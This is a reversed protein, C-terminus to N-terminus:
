TPPDTAEFALEVRNGNGEYEFRLDGEVVRTVWYVLWLGVGASHSLDTEEEEQLVQQEADPVQSCEDLVATVITGDETYIQIHVSPKGDGDYHEIGNEILESLAVEYSDPVRAYVSDPANISISVAPYEARFEAVVRRAYQAVDTQHNSEPVARIREQITRVKESLEVMQRANAEIQTATEIVTEFDFDYSDDTARTRLLEAKGMVLGLKNRINHRLVRTMVQLKQERRKRERIDRGVGVVGALDGDEELVSFSLEVPVRNGEKTILTTTWTESSRVGNALLREVRKKGVEVDEATLIQSPHSGVLEAEEYGTTETMAKNVFTYRGTSDLMYLMEEAEEVLHRYLEKTMGQSAGAEFDESV